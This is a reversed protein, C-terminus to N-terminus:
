KRELGNYECQCHSYFETTLLYYLDYSWYYTNAIEEILGGKLYLDIHIPLSEINVSILTDKIKVIQEETYKM